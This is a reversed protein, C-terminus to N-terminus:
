PEDDDGGLVADLADLAVDILASFGLQKQRQAADTAATQMRSQYPLPLADFGDDLLARRRARLREWVERTVKISKFPGAKPSSPHTSM